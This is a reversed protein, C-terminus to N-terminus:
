NGQAEIEAILEELSPSQGVQAFLKKKDIDFDKYTLAYVAKLYQDRETRLEGVQKQLQECKAELDACRQRLNTGAMTTAPVPKKKAKMSSVGFLLQRQTFAWMWKKGCFGRAHWV